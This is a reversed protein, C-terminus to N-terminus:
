KRIGIQRKSDAWVASKHAKAFKETPLFLAIDWEEPYVYIFKSRVHSNLYRKLTPKFYRLNSAQKLLEYSARIKTSEDYRTNNVLDYLGDMLRARLQPPLYHLNIGYFGKPAPAIYFIMPFRDYFPLQEKTKPDYFYMYMGGPKPTTVMRSQNKNRNDSRAERMFRNADTNVNKAMGRYWDRAEGTRTPM